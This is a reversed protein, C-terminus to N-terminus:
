FKYGPPLPYKSYVQQMIQLRQATNVPGLGYPRLARFENTIVQHYAADLPVLPGNSPGGLYKPTIHHLEIKGAKGPYLNQAAKVLNSYSVSNGTIKTTATASKIAATEVVAASSKFFSTLGWLGRAGELFLYADLMFKNFPQLDDKMYAYDKETSTMESRSKKPPDQDGGNETIKHAAHNLLSVYFATAAGEWFNGGTLVSVGGGSVTSFSVM